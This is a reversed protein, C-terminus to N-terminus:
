AIRLAWDFRSARTAARRETRLTREAASPFPITREASPESRRERTALAAAAAMIRDRLGAPPEVLESADLELLAPVVGGLAEFEPHPLGCTELHARVAAEDPRELAGLVYAAALDVAEDHTMPQDSM